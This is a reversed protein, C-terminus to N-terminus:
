AEVPLGSRMLGWCLQRCSSCAAGSRLCLCCYRAHEDITLSASLTLFDVPDPEAPLLDLSM